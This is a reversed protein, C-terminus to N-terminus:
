KSQTPSRCPHERHPRVWDTADPRRLAVIPSCIQQRNPSNKKLIITIQAIPFTKKKKEKKLLSFHNNTLSIREDLLM